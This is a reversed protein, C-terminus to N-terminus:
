PDFQGTYAIRQNQRVKLHENRIAIHLSEERIEISNEESRQPDFLGACAIRQNQRVKLHENRIAIRLSEQSGLDGQRGLM